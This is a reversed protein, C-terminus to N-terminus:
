LIWQVKPSSYKVFLMDSRNVKKFPEGSLIGGIVSFPILILKIALVSLGLSTIANVLAVIIVIASSL